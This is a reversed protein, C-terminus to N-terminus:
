YGVFQITDGKKYQFVSESIYDLKAYIFNPDLEYNYFTM